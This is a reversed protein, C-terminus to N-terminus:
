NNLFTTLQKEYMNTEVIGGLHGFKSEFTVLEAKKGLSDLISIMEENYITPLLMDKTCSVLMVDAEIRKLADELSPYQHSIDHMMTARCTYYFHSTDVYKIKEDIFKDLAIEYSTPTHIDQYSDLEQSNRPFNEEYYEPSFNHTNLMQVALKLGEIPQNSDEYEGDLWNEDLRIARMGHQMANFSTIVPNRPGTIVGIVKNMMEPYDVAWSLSIYGGMSPGMVAHLKRIGLTNTIFEKQIGAIDRCTYSPFDMGWRKGTKPNISRPGTTIVNPDHYQVNALNDTSIVFYKDTDVAKGPGILKDWYGPEVDDSNYRGAAHSSGTFYHAVLIANSKEENLTGYTEYGLKVPISAGNELEYNELEFFKKEVLM